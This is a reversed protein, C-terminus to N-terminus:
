DADILCFLITTGVDAVSAAVVIVIRRVATMTFAVSAGLEIRAAARTRRVDAVRVREAAVRFPIRETYVM